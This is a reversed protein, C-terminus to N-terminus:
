FGVTVTVLLFFCLLQHATVSSVRPPACLHEDNELLISRQKESIQYDHICIQGTLIELFLVSNSSAVSWFQLSLETYIVQM